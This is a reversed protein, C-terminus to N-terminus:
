EIGWFPVPDKNIDSNGDGGEEGGREKRCETLISPM